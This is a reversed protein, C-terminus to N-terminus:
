ERAIESHSIVDLILPVEDETVTGPGYPTVAKAAEIALQWDVSQAEMAFWLCWALLPPGVALLILLTRLRYRM